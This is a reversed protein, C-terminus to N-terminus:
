QSQTGHSQKFPLLQTYYTHTHTVSHIALLGHTTGCESRLCGLIACITPYCLCQQKKERCTHRHQLYPHTVMHAHFIYAFLMCQFNELVSKRIAKLCGFSKSVSDYCFTLMVCSTHARTVSLSQYLDKRVQSCWEAHRSSWCFTAM